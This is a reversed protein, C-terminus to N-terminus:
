RSWGGINVIALSRAISAEHGSKGSNHHGARGMVDGLLPVVALVDEKHLAVPPHVEPEQALVGLAIAKGNMAVAQHRIVNMDDANGLVLLSQRM